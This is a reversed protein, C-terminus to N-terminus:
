DLELNGHGLGGLDTTFGLSPTEDGESDTIAELSIVGRVPPDQYSAVKIEGLKTAEVPMDPPVSLITETLVARGCFDTAHVGLCEKCRGAPIAMKTTPSEDGEEMQEPDDLPNCPPDGGAEGSKGMDCNELNEGM